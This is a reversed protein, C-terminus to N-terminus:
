TTVWGRMGPLIGSPGPRHDRGWAASNQQGKNTSAKPMLIRFPVTAQPNRAVHKDPKPILPSRAESSPTSRTGVQEMQPPLRRSPNQQGCGGSISSGQGHISDSSGSHGTACSAKRPFAKQGNQKAKSCAKRRTSHKTSHHHQQQQLRPHANVRRPVAKREPWHPGVSCLHLGAWPGGEEAAKM